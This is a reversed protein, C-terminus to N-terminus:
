GISFHPTMRNVSWHDQFLSFSSQTEPTGLTRVVKENLVMKYSTGCEYTLALLYGSKINTPPLYVCLLHFHCSVRPIALLTLLLQCLFCSLPTNPAKSGELLSVNFNVHLWYLNLFLTVFILDHSLALKVAIDQVSCFLSSSPFLWTSCVLFGKNKIVM